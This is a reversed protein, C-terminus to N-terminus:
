CKGRQTALMQMAQTKHHKSPASYCNPMLYDERFLDSSPIQQEAAHRELVCAIIENPIIIILWFGATSLILTDDM